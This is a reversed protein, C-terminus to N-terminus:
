TRPRNPVEVGRQFGAAAAVAEASPAEQFPSVCWTAYQTEADLLVWRCWGLRLTWFPSDPSPVRTRWGLAAAVGPHSEAFRHCRACAGLGNFPAGVDRNSTGGMGRPRVHHLEEVPRGCGVCGPHADRIAARVAPSFAGGQRGM